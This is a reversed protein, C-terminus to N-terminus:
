PCRVSALTLPPLTKGHTQTCVRGHAMINV